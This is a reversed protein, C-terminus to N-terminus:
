LLVFRGDPIYYIIINYPHVYQRPINEGRIIRYNYYFRVRRAFVYVVYIEVVTTKQRAPIHVRQGNARSRRSFDM